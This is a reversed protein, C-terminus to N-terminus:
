NCGCILLYHVSARVDLRGVFAHCLIVWAMEEAGCGLVFHRSGRTCKCNIALCHPIPPYTRYTLKDAYADHALHQEMGDVGKGDLVQARVRTYM